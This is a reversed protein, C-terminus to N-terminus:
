KEIQFIGQKLDTGIINVEVEVTYDVTPFIENWQDKLIRWETPFERGFTNGFGFIDSTLEKQAKNVALRVEGEIEKEAEKRIEELYDLMVKPYTIKIKAQEEVLTVDVKVKIAFSIRGDRIEPIIKTKSNKVELSILKGQELLSPLTIVGNKVKEMIWNLGQTEKENLYGVLADKKFVATGSFRVQKSTNEERKEAPQNTVEIVELVGTVPQIGEQLAKRYYDIVSAATTQYQFKRNEIIGKLYYAQIKDVGDRVSIIELASAGKAICLWAYGRLQRGRVFFDLIPTVDEKALKEDIVIVKTHAYFNLRGFEQTTNRIAEFVTKGRNTVLEVVAEKGPSKRDLSSPRIVQSTVIVGDTEPDKDIAVAVVIGIHNLDTQTKCGTLLLLCLFISCIKLRLM